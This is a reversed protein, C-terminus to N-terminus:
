LSSRSEIEFNDDIKDTIKIKAKKRKIKENRL